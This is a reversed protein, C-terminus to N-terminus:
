LRSGRCVSRVVTLSLRRAREVLDIPLETSWRRIHQPQRVIGIDEGPGAKDMHSEHDVGKGAADDTPPHAARRMGAEHEIRQLLREM